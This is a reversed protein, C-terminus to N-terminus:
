LEPLSVNRAARRHGTVRGAPCASISRLSPRVSRVDHRGVTKHLYAAMLQAGLTTSVGGRRVPRHGLAFCKNENCAM